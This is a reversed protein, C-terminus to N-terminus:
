PEICNEISTVGTETCNAWTTTVNDYQPSWLANCSWILGFTMLGLGDITNNATFGETELASGRVTVNFAM